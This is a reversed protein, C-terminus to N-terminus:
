SEDGGGNAEARAKYGAVAKKLERNEEEVQEMKETLADIQDEAGASFEEIIKFVRWLRGVVVLSGAEEVVGRLCVDVIFGAIIVTADFCHFKSKFYAGGFAWISMILELMFLCSFVLSVIDLAENVDLWVPSADAHECLHLSILFDAFICFVDVSVLLIVSYHGFKSTLFWQVEHRAKYIWSDEGHSKLIHRGIYDNAATSWARRDSRLLPQAEGENDTYQTQTTEDEM